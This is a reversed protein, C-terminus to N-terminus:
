KKIQKYSVIKAVNANDTGRLIDIIADSFINHQTIIFHAAQIISNIKRKVEYIKMNYRQTETDVILKNINETLEHFSNQNIILTDNM